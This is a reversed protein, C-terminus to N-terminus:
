SIHLALARPVDVICQGVVPPAFRPKVISSVKFSTPQPASHGKSTKKKKSLVIADDSRKRKKPSGEAMITLHKQAIVKSALNPTPPPRHSGLIIKKAPM